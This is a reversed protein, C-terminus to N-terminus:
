LIQISMKLLVGTNFDVSRECSSWVRKIFFKLYLDGAPVDVLIELHCYENGFRNISFSYDKATILILERFLEHQVSPLDILLLGHAVVAFNTALQNHASCSM